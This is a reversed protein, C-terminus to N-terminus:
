QNKRVETITYIKNKYTGRILRESSDIYLRNSESLAVSRDSTGVEYFRYYYKRREKDYGKGVLVIFHYTAKNSTNYPTVGKDYHVGVLVPKGGEMNSKITSNLYEVQTEFESTPSLTNYDTDPSVFTAINTRHASSTTVNFQNIMELSAQM